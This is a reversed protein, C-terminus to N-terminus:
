VSQSVEESPTHTNQLYPPVCLMKLLAADGDEEALGKCLIFAGQGVRSRDHHGGEQTHALNGASVPLLPRGQDLAIRSRLKSPGKIAVTHVCSHLLLQLGVYGSVTLNLCPQRIRISLEKWRVTNSNRAM